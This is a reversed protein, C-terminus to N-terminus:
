RAGGFVRARLQEIALGFQRAIEGAGVSLGRHFMGAAPTGYHSIHWQISRAIQTGEKGSKGLKTRVWQELPQIPPMHPKSGLEVAEAYALSTGVGGLMGGPIEQMWPHVSARLAGEAAPTREIVEGQLFLTAAHMWGRLVQRTEAPFREFCRALLDLDDTAFAIKM